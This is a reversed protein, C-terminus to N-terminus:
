SRGNLLSPLHHNRLILMCKMKLLQPMIRYYSPIKYTLKYTVDYVEEFGQEFKYTKLTSMILVKMSESCLLATLKVRYSLAYAM